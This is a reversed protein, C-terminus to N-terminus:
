QMVESNKQVYVDRIELHVATLHMETHARIRAYIEARLAQSLPEVPVGYPLSVEVSLQVSAGPKTMDGHFTCRAILVGPVTREAARILGRLSGETMTLHAGPPTNRLPIHRGARADRRLGTIIRQVWASDVPENVSTDASILEPAIARLRELGEVLHM